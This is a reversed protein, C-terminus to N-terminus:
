MNNSDRISWLIIYMGNYFKLIFRPEIFWESIDAFSWYRREKLLKLKIRYRKDDTQFILFYLRFKNLPDDSWVASQQWKQCYKGNSSLSVTKYVMLIHNAILQKISIDDISQFKIISIRNCIRRLWVILLKGNWALCDKCSNTPITFLSM